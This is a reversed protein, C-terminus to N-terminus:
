EETTASTTPVDFEASQTHSHKATRSTPHTSKEPHLQESFLYRLPKFQAHFYSKTHPYHEYIVFTSM